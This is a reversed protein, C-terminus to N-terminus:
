GVKQRHLGQVPALEGPDEVQSNCLELFEANVEPSLAHSLSKGDIILSYRESLSM